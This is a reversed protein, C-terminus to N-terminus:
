GTCGDLSRVATTCCFGVIDIELWTDLWTETEDSDVDDDCAVAMTFPTLVPTLPVLPFKGRGAEEM